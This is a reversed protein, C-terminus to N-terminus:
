RMSRDWKTTLSAYLPRPSWFFLQHSQIVAPCFSCLANLSADYKTIGMTNYM